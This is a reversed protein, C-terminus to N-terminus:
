SSVALANQERLDDVVRGFELELRESGDSYVLTSLDAVLREFQAPTLETQLRERLSRNSDLRSPDDRRRRYFDSEGSQGGRYVRPEFGDPSSETFSAGVPLKSDM